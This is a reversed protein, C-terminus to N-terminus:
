SVNFPRSASPARSRLAGASFVKAGGATEYYTMQPRGRGSCTPITALIQTGRPSRPATADIEIGANSFERRSGLRHRRLALQASRPRGSSGRAAAPATTTASTSSAWCRRSRPAGPRAVARHPHMSAAVRDIRWYFNNASLFMLNGGRDRFGEVADYERETVYEHHGPFVLLDYAQALAAGTTEDLDDQALM